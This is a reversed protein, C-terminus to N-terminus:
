DPNAVTKRCDRQEQGLVVLHGAREIRGIILRPRHEGGHELLNEFWGASPSSNHIPFCNRLSLVAWLSSTM